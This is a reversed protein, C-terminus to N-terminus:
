EPMEEEPLHAYICVQIRDKEDDPEDSENLRFFRSKQEAFQWPRITIKDVIAEDADPVDDDEYTEVILSGDVHDVVCEVAWFVNHNYVEGDDPLSDTKVGPLSHSLDNYVQYVTTESKPLLEIKDIGEIYDAMLSALHQNLSM